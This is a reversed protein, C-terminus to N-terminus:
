LDGYRRPQVTVELTLGAYDSSRVAHHQESLMVPTEKVQQIMYPGNGTGKRPVAVSIVPRGRGGAGCGGSNISLRSTLRSRSAAGSANM